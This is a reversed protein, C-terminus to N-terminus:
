VISKRQTSAPINLQERYKTVTRRAINIGQQSLIHAVKNDSVPKIESEEEIIKKIFSRIATASSSSGDSNKVESSFFYKLEFNGRPCSLYKDATARSITSEHLGLKDAITQLVLPKLAQEGHEFFLQQCKVIEQAVKLLTDHRQQLSSILWKAQQLHDRLYQNDDSHDGRKIYSKYIENVRIGPTTQSNLEALWVGSTNKIIIDPIIYQTRKQSISAGPKPNLSRVLMVAEALSKDDARCLTKLRKFNHRALLELHNEIIQSAITPRAQSINDKNLQLQLCESLTRAGVGAPDFSQVQHTMAEIESQHCDDALEMLEENSATLYGDENICGIIIEGIRRDQISLRLGGLQWNLHDYLTTPTSNRQDLQTNTDFRDQQQNHGSGIDAWTLETEGQESLLHETEILNIEKEQETAFRLDDDEVNPLTTESTQEPEVEELLPNSDLSLQIEQQLEFASLQLIRIAQQMQPTMGQRQGLKINLGQKM